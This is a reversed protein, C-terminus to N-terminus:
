YMPCLIVRAELINYVNVFYGFTIYINYYLNGYFDLAKCINGKYAAFKEM